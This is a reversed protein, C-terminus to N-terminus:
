YQKSQVFKEKQENLNGNLWVNQNVRNKYSVCCVCVCFAFNTFCVSFCSITQHETKTKLERNLKELKKSRSGKRAQAKWSKPFARDFNGPKLSVNSSFCTETKMIIKEQLRVKALCFLFAILIPAFNQMSRPHM